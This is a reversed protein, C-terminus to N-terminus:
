HLKYLGLRKAIPKIIGQILFFVMKYYFMKLGNIGYKKLRIEKDIWGEVLNKYNTVNSIGGDSMNSLVKMIPIFLYNSFYCRLIFDADASIKMQTDFLGCKDYIVRPVFTAPHRIGGMDFSKSSSELLAMNPFLEQNWGKDSYFRIGGTYIADLNNDHREFANNVIELADHELWDDSNVLGIIAGTSLMIGKNMADYIGSDLESIWKMRGQFRPEFRKVIEVTGDNSAGDVVIYEYNQFGQSLISQITREITKESNFSVTIISFRPQMVM